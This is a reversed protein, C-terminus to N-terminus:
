LRQTMHSTRQVTKRVYDNEKVSAMIEELKAQM